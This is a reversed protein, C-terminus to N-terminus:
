RDLSKIRRAAADSLTPLRLVERCLKKLQKALRQHIVMQRGYEHVATPRLEQPVHTNQSAKACFDPSSLPILEYQAIHRPKSHLTFERGGHQWPLELSGQGGFSARIRSEM